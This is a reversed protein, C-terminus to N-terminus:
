KQWELEQMGESITTRSVKTARAVASIGGNGYTM